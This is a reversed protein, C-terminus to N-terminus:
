FVDPVTRRVHDDDAFDNPRKQRKGLDPETFKVREYPISALIHSGQENLDSSRGVLQWTKRFIHEHELELMHPDTYWSSPITESRELPQIELDRSNIM